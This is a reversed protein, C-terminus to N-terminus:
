TGPDPPASPEVHRQEALSQVQEAEGAHGAASLAGALQGLYVAEPVLVEYGDPPGRFGYVRVYGEPIRVGDVVRDYEDLDGPYTVGFGGDSDGFGHRCAAFEALESLRSWHRIVDRAAAEPEPEEVASLGGGGFSL